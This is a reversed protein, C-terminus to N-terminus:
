RMKRKLNKMINELLPFPSTANACFFGSSINWRIASHLSLSFGAVCALSLSSVQTFKIKFLSSQLRRTLAPICVCNKFIHFSTIHKYLIRFGIHFFFTKGEEGTYNRYKQFHFSYKLPLNGPTFDPSVVFCPMQITFLIHHCYRSQGSQQIRCPFISLFTWTIPIM